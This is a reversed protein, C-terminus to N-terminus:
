FRLSTGVFFTALPVDGYLGLYVGADIQVDRAVVYLLGVDLSGSARTAIGDENAEVVPTETFLEVFGSVRQSLPQTVAGTAIVGSARSTVHALYGLNLELALGSPLDYGWFLFGGAVSLKRRAVEVYPVLTLLWVDQQGSFLLVKARLAFEESLRPAPGSVLTSIPAYFGELDLREHIGLKLQTNWLTLDDREKASFGYEVVGIEAQAHGPDLIAPTDTKHPRDTVIDELCDEPVHAFLHYTGDCAKARVSGAWSLAAVIALAGKLGGCLWLNRLWRM